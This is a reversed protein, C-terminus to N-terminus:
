KTAALLALREAHDERGIWEDKAWMAPFLRGARDILDSKIYDWDTEESCAERGEGCDCTDGEEECNLCYGGDTPTECFAVLAGSPYSVSRGMAVGGGWRQPQLIWRASWGEAMFNDGYWLNVQWTEWNKWGNYASM